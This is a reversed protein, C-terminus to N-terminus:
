MLPPPRLRAFRVGLSLFNCGDRILLSAGPHIMHETHNYSALSIRACLAHVRPTYATRRTAKSGPCVYVHVQRFARVGKKLLGVGYALQLGAQSASMGDELGVITWTTAVLM